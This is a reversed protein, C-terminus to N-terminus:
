LKQFQVIVKKKCARSPIQRQTFASTSHIIIENCPHPSAGRGDNPAEPLPPVLQVIPPVVNMDKHKRKVHRKVNDSRGEYECLDAPCRVIAHRGHNSLADLTQYTMPQQNMAPAYPSPTLLQPDHRMACGSPGFCRHRVMYRFM